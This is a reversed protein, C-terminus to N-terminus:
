RNSCAFPLQDETMGSALAAAQSRWGAPPERLGCLPLTHWALGPVQVALRMGLRLEAQGTRPTVVAVAQGEQLGYRFRALPQPEAAALTDLGGSLALAEVLPWTQSPLNTIAEVLTLKSLFPPVRQLCLALCVLVIAWAIAGDLPAIRWWSWALARRQARGHRM